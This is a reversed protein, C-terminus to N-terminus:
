KNFIGGPVLFQLFSYLFIYCVIAIVTNYIRRKALSVKQPDGVSGAYQIGGMIISIVAIIGFCLSLLNITPNVYKGVIDCNSQNSDCKGDIAPDACAGNECTNNSPTTDPNTASGVQAQRKKYDSCASKLKKDSGYKDCIANAAKDYGSTTTYVTGCYKKYLADSKGKASKLAPCIQNNFIDASKSDANQSPSEANAPLPLLFGSLVVATLIGAFLIFKLKHIYARM